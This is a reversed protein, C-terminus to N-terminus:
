RLRPRYQFKQFPIGDLLQKYHIQRPNTQKQTDLDFRSTVDEPIYNCSCNYLNHKFVDVHLSVPLANGSLKEGTSMEILLTDARFVSVFGDKFM